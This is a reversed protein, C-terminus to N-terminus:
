ERNTCGVFEAGVFGGVTDYVPETGVPCSNPNDPTAVIEVTETKICPGIDGRYDMETCITVKNFAGNATLIGIVIGIMVVVGVVISVIIWLKKKDNKNSKQQIMPRNEENDTLTDAILINDNQPQRIGSNDM